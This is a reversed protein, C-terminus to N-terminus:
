AHRRAFGAFRNAGVQRAARGPIGAIRKALGDRIMRTVRLQQVPACQRMRARAGAVAGMRQQVFRLLRPLGGRPQRVDQAEAAAEPFIREGASGLMRGCRGSRLARSVLVQGGVRQRSVRIGADVRRCQRHQEAVAVRCPRERPFNGAPEGRM